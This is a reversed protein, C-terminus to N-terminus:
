TCFHSMCTRRFLPCEELAHHVDDVDEGDQGVEDGDKEDLGARSLTPLLRSAAHRSKIFHSAIPTQHHTVKLKLTILHINNIKSIIM